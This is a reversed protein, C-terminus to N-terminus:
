LLGQEAFSMVRSGGVILHDLLRIDVLNLARELQATIDRDARSPTVDGSPHNHALIVAGANHRLGAKVVERPHVTICNLTGLFLTESQLLRNQNDLYLVMLVEREQGAMALCCWEKTIQSRTFFEVPIRLTNELLQMAQSITAQQQENFLASM